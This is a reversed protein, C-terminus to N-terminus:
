LESKLTKRAETLSVLVPAAKDVAVGEGPDEIATGMLAYEVMFTLPGTTYSAAVVLSLDPPIGLYKAVFDTCSQDWSVGDCPIVLMTGHQPYRELIGKLSNSVALKTCFGAPSGDPLFARWVELTVAFRQVEVM